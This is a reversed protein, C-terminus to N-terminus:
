PCAIRRPAPSAQGRQKSAASAWSREHQDCRSLSATVGHGGVGALLAEFRQDHPVHGARVTEGDRRVHDGLPRRGVAAGAVDGAARLVVVAGVREVHRLEEGEQAGGLGLRELLQRHGIRVVRLVDVAELEERAEGGLDALAADDVHQALAHVVPRHVEVQEVARRRRAVGLGLRQVRLVAERDRALEGVAHVLRAAREVQAQEDVAQGDGGELQLVAEGLLRDLIGDLLVLAVAVRALPQELEAAAHHVERHVVALHPHAGLKRALARPEQGEVLAVVVARAVRGVRVAELGVVEPFLHEGRRPQGVDELVVRLDDLLLVRAGALLLALLHPRAVVLEAHHPLRQGVHAGVARALAVQDLVRRAAALRVGDGPERVLEDAQLAVLLSTKSETM